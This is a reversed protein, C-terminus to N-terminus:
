AQNTRGFRIGPSSVSTLCSDTPLNSPAQSVDQLTIQSRISHILHEMHDLFMRTCPAHSSCMQTAPSLHTAFGSSLSDRSPKKQLISPFNTPILPVYYWGPKTPFPGPFHKAPLFRWSLPLQPAQLIIIFPPNLTYLHIFTTCRV